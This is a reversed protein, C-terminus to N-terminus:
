LRRPLLVGLRTRSLSSRYRPLSRVRCRQALHQGARRLSGNGGANALDGRPQWLRALCLAFRRARAAAMAHALPKAASRARLARYETCVLFCDAGWWALHDETQRLLAPLRLPRPGRAHGAEWKSIRLCPAKVRSSFQAAEHYDVSGAPVIVPAGM